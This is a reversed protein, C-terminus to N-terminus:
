TYKYAFKAIGLGTTTCRPGHTRVPGAQGVPVRGASRPDKAKPYYRTRNHKSGSANGVPVAQRVARVLAGDSIRKERVKPWRRPFIDQLDLRTARVCGRRRGLINERSVPMRVDSTSGRDGRVESMSRRTSTKASRRHRGSGTADLRLVRSELNEGRFIEQLDFPTM